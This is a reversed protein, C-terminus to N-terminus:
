QMFHQYTNLNIYKLLQITNLIFKILNFFFNIKIEISYYFDTSCQICKSKIALLGHYLIIFRFFFYHETKYM